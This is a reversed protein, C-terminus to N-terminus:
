EIIYITVYKNQYVSKLFPYVSRLDNVGGDEREQPGFFIASVRNSRVWSLAADPRMHGSFFLRVVAEKEEAQVTNAHGVYVTHGTYAPIYNGATTESLVVTDRPVHDNIYWLADVFNKLPYMVYTGTPVLPYAGQMKHDIFDRQWLWSSYMQGFGVFLLAILFINLILARPCANQLASFSRRVSFKVRQFLRPPSTENLSFRPDRLFRSPTLQADRFFTEGSRGILVFFLYATLVALPVHPLIESFRLPSQEPIFRFVFLLGLWALVWAVSVRLRKEKTFLAVVLGFVGLPLVPGLAKAYELYNFPLPKLVDFEALRKWPYFSTMLQVYILSPVSLAVVVVRPLLSAWELVVLVGAVAILFVLGPPFIIGLLFALAGLFIWNGPRKLVAEDSLLLVLVIILIQGAVVHPIFAMRQLPDMLSWWSMSGGLRWSGQWNVLTPWSSATVALLFALLSSKGSGSQPFARKCFEAISFLLAAGFIIRAVHYIDGVRHLPVRVWRGVQGLWLYFIHVFSGAHPESTYREIVTWRGEIGQRIRSLYFNYDTPFNHILEFQRVEPLRERNLLEYGTPMLSFLVFFFVLFAMARNAM